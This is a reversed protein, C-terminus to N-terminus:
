HPLAALALLAPEIPFQRGTITHLMAQNAGGLTSSLTIKDVREGQAFRSLSDGVSAIITYTTEASLVNHGGPIDMSVSTTAAAVAGATPPSDLAVAQGFRPIVTVKIVSGPPIGSTALAITVPNATTTPITLDNSGTPEAPVPIGAISAFRLGPQGAIFLPGPAGFTFAPSTPGIGALTDAELRIRGQGGGAFSPHSRNGGAGGDATITGTGSIVTAVVRIGGGSGGGGNPAGGSGGNTIIQGTVTVKGTTALLM